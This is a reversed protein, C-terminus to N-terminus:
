TELLILVWTSGNELPTTKTRIQLFTKGFKTIEQDHRLVNVNIIHSWANNQTHSRGILFTTLYYCRRENASGMCLINWPTESYGLYVPEIDVNSFTKPDLLYPNHLILLKQRGNPPNWPGTNNFQPPIIPFAVTCKCTKVSIICTVPKFNLINITPSPSVFPSENTIVGSWKWCCSTNCPLISCMHYIEKEIIILVYLIIYTSSHRVAESSMLTNNQHKNGSNRLLSPFSYCFLVRTLWICKTLLTCVNNWKKCSMVLGYIVIFVVIKVCRGRTESSRNGNQQRHWLRNSIVDCHGSLQSAIVHIFIDLGNSISKIWPSIWSRDHLFYKYKM